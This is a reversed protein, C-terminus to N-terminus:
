ALVLPLSMPTAPPSKTSIPFWRTPHPLSLLAPAGMMFISDFWRYSGCIQGLMEVVCHGDSLKAPLPMQSQQRSEEM